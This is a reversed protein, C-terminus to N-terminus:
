PEWGADMSEQRSKEMAIRQDVQLRYFRVAADTSLFKDVWDPDIDDLYFALVHDPIAPRKPAPLMGREVLNAIEQDNLSSPTNM